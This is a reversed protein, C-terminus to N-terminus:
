SPPSKVGTCERAELGTISGLNAGIAREAPITQGTIRARAVMNCEIRFLGGSFTIKGASTSRIERGTLTMERFASADSTFGALAVLSASMGLLLRRKFL